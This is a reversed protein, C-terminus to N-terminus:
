VNIDIPITSCRQAASGGFLVFPLFAEPFSPFNRAFRCVKQTLAEPHLTDHHEARESM